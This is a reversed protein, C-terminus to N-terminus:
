SVPPDEHKAPAPNNAANCPISLLMTTGKYPISQAEIKGGLLSAYHRCMALGIGFGKKGAHDKGTSIQYYREFIRPLHEAAIGIGTDQISVHLIGEEPTWAANVHVSGGAPTFKFANQLLNMLIKELKRIDIEVNLTPPLTHTLAYSISKHTAVGEFEQCIRTIFSALPAIGKEVSVVGAELKSLELVEDILQLIKKANRQVRELRERYNAPLDDRRLFDNVPGIILTLPNRIEHSLDQFFRTKEVDLQLLAEAQKAIVDREQQLEVTKEAVEAALRRSLRLLHWQRWRTFFITLGLILLTALAVFWSKLYYPRDVRIPIKLSNTHALGNGLVAAGLEITYDGFPLHFVSFRPETLNRWSSDIEPIRWRYQIQERLFAPVIFSIELEDTGHPILMTKHGFLAEATLNIPTNKLQNKKLYLALLQINLIQAPLEALSDPHFSIIGSIGGFYLRGLHDQHHSLSNFENSPLGDTSTFTRFKERKKDFCLLGNQSPIWLREFSDEYVAHLVNTPLDHSERTFTQVEGSWPKWRWLGDKTSMWFIGLADEHIDTIASPFLGNHAIEKTFHKIPQNSSNLLWLGDEGGIWLGEKNPHFTSGSVNLLQQFAAETPAKYFVAKPSGAYVDGSASLYVEGIEGLRRDPFLQYTQNMQHPLNWSFISKNHLSSWLANGQIALGRGLHYHFLTSKKNQLNIEYLGAYSNVFLSNEYTDMGRTSPPSPLDKFYSTFYNDSVEVRILAGTGIMWFSGDNLAFIRHEFDKIGHKIFHSELGLYLPRNHDFVGLCGSAKLVMNIGAANNAWVPPLKFGNNSLNRWRMTHMQQASVPILGKSVDCRLLMPHIATQDKETGILYSEGDRGMWIEQFNFNPPLSLRALVQGDQQLLDLTKSPLTSKWISGNPAPLYKCKRNEDPTVHMMENWHHDPGFYGGIGTRPDLVWILSDAKHLTAIVMNSFKISTGTYEEFSITKEKYPDYILITPDSTPSACFLWLNQDNDQIIRRINQTLSSEGKLPHIKFNKGDLSVLGLETGMWILGRNDQILDTIHWTPLDASEKWYSIRILKDELPIVEIEQAQVSLGAKLGIFAVILVLFRLPM